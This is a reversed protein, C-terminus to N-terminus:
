FELLSKQLPKNGTLMNEFIAELVDVVISNGAQKYLQADSCVEKAKDFDEDTMGMLRWCERPTLRRVTLRNEAILKQVIESDMQEKIEAMNEVVKPDAIGGHQCMLTQAPGSPDLANSAWKYSSIGLDITKPKDIIIGGGCGQGTNLTPIMQPQVRGRAKAQDM